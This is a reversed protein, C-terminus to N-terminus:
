YPSVSHIYQTEQHNWLYLIQRHHLLCLNLGQTLFIGQLLLHCGVETSQRPFEISLPAQPAATWPTEFSDSMVSESLVCVTVEPSSYALSPASAVKHLGPRM